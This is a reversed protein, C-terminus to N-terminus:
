RYNRRDEWRRADEELITKTRDDNTGAKKDYGFTTIEVFRNGSIDRKVSYGYPVGYHDILFKSEVYPGNWQPSGNSTVLANLGGEQVTPFRGFDLHFIKLAKDIEFLDESAKEWGAQIADYVKQRQDEPLTPEIYIEEIQGIGALATASKFFESEVTWKKVLRTIRETLTIADFKSPEQGRKVFLAEQKGLVVEKEPIAPSIVGVKGSLVSVNTEKTEKSVEVHFVTGRVGTVATPTAVKFKSEKTKLRGVESWLEGKPLSVKIDVFKTDPNKELNELVFRSDAGVGSIATTELTIVVKSQLGTRIEDGPKVTMGKRAKSYYTRGVKKIEATGSIEEIRGKGPVTGHPDVKEKDINFIIKGGGPLETEMKYEEAGEDVIRGPIKKGKPTEVSAALAHDLFQPSLLFLTVFILLSIRLACNM